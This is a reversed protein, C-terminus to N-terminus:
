AKIEQLLLTAGMVGGLLRATTPGNLRVTGTSGGVRVTFTQASVSGGSWEFVFSVPRSYGVTELSVYSAAVANTAGNQFLAVILAAPVTGGSGALMVTARIKNTTAKPTLSASLVQTGETVQPITDDAPIAATLDANTAYIALVSDILAGAPITGAAGAAGTAGTAGAPGTAGTAGTAGTPGVPGALPGETNTIIYDVGDRTVAIGNGGVVNAPFVVSGEIELVVPSQAELEIDVDAM